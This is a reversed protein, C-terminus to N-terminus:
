RAFRELFLTKAAGDSNLGIIRYDNGTITVKGKNAPSFNPYALVSVVLTYKTSPNTGGGAENLFEDTVLESLDGFYSTGLYTFAVGCGLSTIAQSTARQMVDLFGM